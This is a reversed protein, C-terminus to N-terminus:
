NRIVIKPINFQSVKNVLDNKNTKLSNLFYDINAGYARTSVGFLLINAKGSNDTFTKYRYVNREVASMTKGDAANASLIFDIMYEGQKTNEFSQYNVMPNGEKLKKLETIKSAVVSKLDSAGAIVDMLIMVKYSDAPDGKEIYEHKYFDPSPHSSWSLNYSKKDFVIPGPVSLYDIAPKNAQGFCFVSFTIAPLLVSLILNKSM